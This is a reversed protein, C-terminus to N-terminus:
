FISYDIQYISISASESWAINYEDATLIRRGRMTNIWCIYELILFTSAECVLFNAENSRTECLREKIERIKYKVIGTIVPWSAWFHKQVCNIM